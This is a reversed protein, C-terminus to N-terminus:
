SAQMRYFRIRHGIHGRFASPHDPIRFDLNSSSVPILRVSYLRPRGILTGGM